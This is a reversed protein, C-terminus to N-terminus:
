NQKCVKTKKCEISQLIALAWMSIILIIGFSAIVTPLSSITNGNAYNPKIYAAVLACLIFIYISYILTVFQSTHMIVKNHYQKLFESIILLMILIIWSFVFGTTLFEGPLGESTGGIFSIYSYITTLKADTNTVNAIIIQNPVLM